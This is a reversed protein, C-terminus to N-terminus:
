FKFFLGLILLFTDREFNLLSLKGVRSKRISSQVLLHLKRVQTLLVERMNRALLKRVQTLVM